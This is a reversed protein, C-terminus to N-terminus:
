PRRSQCDCGRGRSRIDRQVSADERGILLPPRYKEFTRVRRSFSHHQKPETLAQANLGSAASVKMPESGDLLRSIARRVTKSSGLRLLREWAILWLWPSRGRTHTSALQWM